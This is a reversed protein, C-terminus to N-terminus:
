HVNLKAEKKAQKKLRDKESDRWMFIASHTSINIIPKAKWLVFLLWVIAPIVGLLSFEINKMPTILDRYESAWILLPMGAIIATWCCTFFGITFSKTEIPETPEKILDKFKM